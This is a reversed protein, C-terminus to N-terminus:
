AALKLKNEISEILEQTPPSVSFRLISYGQPKVIRAPQHVLKFRITKLSRILYGYTRKRTRPKRSALTQLQFGTLLNHGLISLQQWASNAYYHYTLALVLDSLSSLTRTTWCRCCLQLLFGPSIVVASLTIL